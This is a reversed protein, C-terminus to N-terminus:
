ASAEKGERVNLVEDAARGLYYRAFSSETREERAAAEKIKGRLEEPIRIGLITAETNETTPTAEDDTM